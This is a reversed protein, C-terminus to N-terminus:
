RMWFLAVAAVTGASLTIAIAVHERLAVREAHGVGVDDEVLGIRHTGPGGIM